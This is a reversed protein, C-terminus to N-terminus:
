WKLTAGITAVQMQTNGSPSVITLNTNGPQHSHGYLYQWYLGLYKGVLYNGGIAIGYESLTRAETQRSVAGTASNVRVPVYNGASQSDFVSAGIVFPGRDYSVGVIYALANRAGIPKPAYGDLTQGFKVNAGLSLADAPFILNSITTQIGAEFVQLNDLAYNGTYTKQVTPTNGVATVLSTSTVLPGTYRIAAGEIVGISAKTNFGGAKLAYQLAADFTDQRQKAVTTNWSNTSSLNNSLDNAASDNALGQKIGNGSPEFSLAANASGGLYPVSITPSILTLKVATYLAGQDAYIFQGPAAKTPAVQLTTDTTSFQSGDGFSEIVGDQLLSFAGDTQGLRIYGYPKEGVYGYARRVYLNGTGAGTATANNGAGKGPDTFSMRLEVQAGYEVAEVTEADFGPYVRVDGNTALPSLKASVGNSTVSNYSSNVDDLGIQLYGNIHVNISGPTVPKLSQAQAAGMSLLTSLSAAIVFYLKRMFKM